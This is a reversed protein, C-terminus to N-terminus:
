GPAVPNYVTICRCNIIQEPLGSPDGPYLLEDDGVEFPKDMDQVQGNAAVHDERTRDDAVSVWEKVVNLGTDQVTEFMADQSASHTETRAITLARNSGFAGGIEDTINAAIEDESLGDAAGRSIISDLKNSTTRSIEGSRKDSWKTIFRRATAAYEDDLKDKYEQETRMSKEIQALVRAGFDRFITGYTMRLIRQLHAEHETIMHERQTADARSLREAVRRFEAALAARMRNVHTVRLREQLAHERVKAIRTRLNIM